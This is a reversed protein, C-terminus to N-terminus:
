IKSELLADQLEIAQGYDCLYFELPGYEHGPFLALTVYRLFDYIMFFWWFRSWAFLAASKFAGSRVFTQTKADYDGAWIFSLWKFAQITDFAEFTM